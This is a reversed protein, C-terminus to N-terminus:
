ASVEVPPLPDAATRSVLGARAYAALTQEGVARWGENEAGAIAAGALAELRGPTRLAEAIGAALAAPDGPAVVVGSGDAVLEPLGGVATVVLGRGHRKAQAGVGSQSAERYPLVVLSVDGFVRDLEDEPVHRHRLRVRADSLTASDPLDGAGAVHLELEPLERWLHEMASLLVDLGKYASLRGFFLLAPRRPLPLPHPTDIGHPVVAVPVDGCRRRLEDALRGAHVFTVAARRVLLRELGLHVRSAGRDGPHRWVDHVTLAYRGPRAGAVLPLRPDNVVTSQLHVVDPAFRRVARAVRVAAPYAGPDRPRGPLILHRTGPALEAAAYARMSGPEGGFEHDHNRTLLAPRAGAEALGRALGSTYKVLWDCACLVRPPESM